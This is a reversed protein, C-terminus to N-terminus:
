YKVSSLATVGLLNESHRGGVVYIGRFPVGKGSDRVKACATGETLYARASIECHGALWSREAKM